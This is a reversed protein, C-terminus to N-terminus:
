HRMLCSFATRANPAENALTIDRTYFTNSYVIEVCRKRLKPGILGPKPASQNSLYMVTRKFCFYNFCYVAFPPGAGFFAFNPKKAPFTIAVTKPITM